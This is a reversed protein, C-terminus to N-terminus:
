QGGIMKRTENLIKHMDIYSMAQSAAANAEVITDPIDKPGISCGAAFVGPINTKVPNELYSEPKIWGIFDTKLEINKFLKKVEPNPFLGVSLVVIDFAEEKLKGGDEMDEYKVVVEGDENEEIYKIRGKIFYTGMDVAQQYFEEFRKGYARVDIYFMYVDALPLTGMILQAQKISYMCCIQSCYPNGVTKDRSGVCFVYAIKAPEKGDSPRLLSNYPRTPALLRDMEMSTIVNSSKGYGFEPKQLPDFLKFGTALIVSKVKIHRTKPLMTFDIADTPCARECAGCFICNDIDIISKKPVAIDFPIYAAKRGRLGFQFEDEVIVPCAMECESCGTCKDLHVYRSKELIEARFDAEGKREIGKVESYTLLTINPHYLVSAMKPTTICSACDLTPFVKSLLAMHGGVSGQKEVLLVKYGADALTLSAEIGAIGAGVVLVDYEEIEETM